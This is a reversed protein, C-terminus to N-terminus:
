MRVRAKLSDAQHREERITPEGGSLACPHQPESWRQIRRGPCRARTGGRGRENGGCSGHGFVRVAICRAGTRYPQPM